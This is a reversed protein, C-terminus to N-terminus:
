ARIVPEACAFQVFAPIPHLMRIRLPQPLADGTEGPAGVDSQYPSPAAGAVDLSVFLLTILALPLLVSGILRRNM